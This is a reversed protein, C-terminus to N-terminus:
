IKSVFEDIVKEPSWETTSLEWREKICATENPQYSKLEGLLECELFLDNTYTEYNCCFDPYDPNRLVINKASMSVGDKTVVHIQNAERGANVYDYRSGMLNPYLYHLDHNGMLLTVKEPNAEKFAIIDLLGAFAKDRSIGEHPYPDLYDGLFLFEADTRLRVAERWFDRGHVDPIIVLQDKDLDCLTNKM